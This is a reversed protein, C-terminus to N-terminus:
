IVLNEQEWLQFFRAPLLDHESPLFKKETYDWKRDLKSWTHWSFGSVFLWELHAFKQATDISNTADFDDYSQFNKIYRHADNKTIEAPKYIWLEM